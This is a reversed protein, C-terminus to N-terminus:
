YSNLLKGDCDSLIVCEFVAQWLMQFTKMDRFKRLTEMGNM